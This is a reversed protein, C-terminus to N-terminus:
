DFQKRARMRDVSEPQLTAGMVLLARAAALFVEPNRHPLLRELSPGAQELASPGIRGLITAAACRVEARIDELAAVLAPIATPNKQDTLSAITGAAAERRAKERAQDAVSKATTRRKRARRAGRSSRPPLQGKRLLDRQIQEEEILDLTAQGSAEYRRQEEWKRDEEASMDDWDPWMEILSPVVGQDRLWSMDADSLSGTGRLYDVLQEIVKM